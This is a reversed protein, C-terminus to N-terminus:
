PGVSIPSICSPLIRLNDLFLGSTPPIWSLWIFRHFHLHIPAESSISPPMDFSTTRASKPQQHATSQSSTKTYTPLHHRRAGKKQMAQKLPRNRIGHGYEIHQATRQPKYHM